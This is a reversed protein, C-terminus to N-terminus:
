MSMVPFRIVSGEFRSISTWSSARSSVPSGFELPTLSRKARERIVIPASNLFRRSIVKTEAASAEDVALVAVSAGVMRGVVARRSLCVDLSDTTTISRQAAM